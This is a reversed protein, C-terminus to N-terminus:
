VANRREHEAETMDGAGDPDVLEAADDDSTTDVTLDTDCGDLDDDLEAV